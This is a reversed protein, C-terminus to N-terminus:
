HVAAVGLSGGRGHFFKLSIQYKKAMEQIEQQAKYLSWNATLTGGDKSGDSYGLMIEQQNGMKNLHNRYLPMNFFTELIEPGAILDDITELLHLSM